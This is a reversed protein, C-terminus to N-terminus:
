FLETSDENLEQIKSQYHPLLETFTGSPMSKLFWDLVIRESEMTYIKRCAEIQGNTLPQLRVFDMSGANNRLQTLVEELLMVIEPERRFFLSTLSQEDEKGTLYGDIKQTEKKIVAIAEQLDHQITLLQFMQLHLFSKKFLDYIYMRMIVKQTDIIHQVRQSFIDSYQLKAISQEPKLASRNPTGAQRNLRPIYYLHIIKNVKSFDTAVLNGAEKLKQSLQEQDIMQEKYYWVLIPILM